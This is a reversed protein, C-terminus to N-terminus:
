DRGDSAEARDIAAQASDVVERHRRADARDLVTALKRAAEIASLRDDAHERAARDLRRAAWVLYAVYAVVIVICGIVAVRMITQSDADLDIKPARPVRPMRPARTVPPTTM